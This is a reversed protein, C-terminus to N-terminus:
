PRRAPPRLRRPFGRALQRRRRGPRQRWAPQRRPPGQAPAGPPPAAPRLPRLPRLRAMPGRPARRPRWASRRHREGPAPRRRLSPTWARQASRVAAITGSSETSTARAARSVACARGRARARGRELQAPAGPSGPCAPTGAATRRRPPLPNGVPAAQARRPGMDAPAKRLPPLAPAGPAARRGSPWRGGAEGRRRAAQLLDQRSPRQTWPKAPGSRPCPSAPDPSTGRSRYATPAASSQRAAPAQRSSPGLGVFTARLAGRSRPPATWRLPGQSGQTMAQTM